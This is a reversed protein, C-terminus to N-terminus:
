PTESLWLEGHNRYYRNWGNFDLKVNYVSETVKAIVSIEGFGIESAFRALNFYFDKAKYQPALKKVRLNLLKAMHLRWGSAGQRRSDWQAPTLNIEDVVNVVIERATIQM